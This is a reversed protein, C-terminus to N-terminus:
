LILMADGYSFFRYKESVAHAYGDAIRKQGALASVLMMLTSCPLHFNTLLGDIVKFRYGPRIFLDTAGQGSRIRGNPDVASELTRLSTTGVSVITQNKELAQNIRGASAESVSWRETHMVHDDISEARVPAFTGAGVHLTVHVREIGIRDLKDFISKTFHLGATPAAVAGKERAYITQYRERDAVRQSDAQDSRRRIYPPLPAVGLHDLAWQAKDASEFAIRYTGGGTVEDVHVATTEDLAIRDGARLVKSAKAMCTWSAGDGQPEMLLFEVRGGTPKTGFLRAPIVKTDNLVLLDVGAKDLLGPLDSFQHDFLETSNQPLHLLRSQDRKQAPNQAILEEPLAYDFDSTKM